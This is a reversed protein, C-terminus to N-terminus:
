FLGRFELAKKMKYKEGAQRCAPEENKMKVRLSEEVM